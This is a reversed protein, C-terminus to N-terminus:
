YKKQITIQKQKFYYKSIGNKNNFNKINTITFHLTARSLNRELILKLDKIVFYWKFIIQRTSNM